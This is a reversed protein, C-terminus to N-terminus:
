NRWQEGSAATNVLVELTESAFVPTILGFFAIARFMPRDYGIEGSQGM